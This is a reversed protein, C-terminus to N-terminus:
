IGPPDRGPPRLLTRACLDLYVHVFQSEGRVLDGSGDGLLIRRIPLIFPM